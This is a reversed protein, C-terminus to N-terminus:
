NDEVENTIVDQVYEVALEMLQQRDKYTCDRGHSGNYTFYVHKKGYADFLEINLGINM